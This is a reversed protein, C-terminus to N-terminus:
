GDGSCTASSHSSIPPCVAAQFHGHQRRPNQPRRLGPQHKPWRAQELREMTAMAIAAIARAIGGTRSLLPRPGKRERHRQPIMKKPRPPKVQRKAPLRQNDRQIDRRAPQHHPLRIPLPQPHNQISPPNKIKRNTPHRATNFRPSPPETQTDSSRRGCFSIFACEGAGVCDAPKRHPTTRGGLRAKLWASAKPWRRM